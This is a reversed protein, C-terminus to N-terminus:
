SGILENEIEALWDIYGTVRFEKHLSIESITNLHNQILVRLAEREQPNLYQFRDREKNEVSYFGIMGDAIQEALKAAFLGMGSGTKIECDIQNDGFSDQTRLVKLNYFTTPWAQCYVEVTQGDSGDKKKYVAILVSEAHPYSRPGCWNRGFAKEDETTKYLNLVESGEKKTSKVM